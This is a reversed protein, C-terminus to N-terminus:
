AAVLRTLRLEGEGHRTVGDDIERLDERKAREEVSGIAKRGLATLPEAVRQKFAADVDAAVVGKALPQNLHATKVLSVNLGETGVEGHRQRRPEGILRMLVVPESDGTEALLSLHVVGGSGALLRGYCEGVDGDEDILM